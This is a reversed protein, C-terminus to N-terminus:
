KKLKKIVKSIVEVKKLRYDKTNPMEMLYELEKSINPKFIKLDKKFAKFHSIQFGKNKFYYLEVITKIYLRLYDYFVYYQKEAVDKLYPLLTTLTSIRKDILEERLNPNIKAKKKYKAFVKKRDFLPKAEQVWGRVFGQYKLLLEENKFVDNMIEDLRKKELFHFSVKRGDLSFHSGYFGVKNVLDLSVSKNRLQTKEIIDVIRPIVKKAIGNFLIYYDLDSNKTERGCARSGHLCFLEVAKDKRLINILEKNLQTIEKKSFM